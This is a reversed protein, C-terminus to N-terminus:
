VQAQDQAARALLREMQSRGALYQKQWVVNPYGQQAAARLTWNPDSLHPRALCVLDARGALLISNAHDTETINGVAMTPIGAEHRIRDAFPTQFMRGYVPKAETSTQGASVDVIDCGAAKFAKAIEVAETPTVGLDGVWDNSSLRVSIPKDAPWAERVARFVELPFRLRNELSGGYADTRKNMLPTVFASMLYGHAYHLELMDFGARQAMGAARVYQDRVLDMDARTMERPVQNRPSWPVPSPGLIEWNGEPLPADMEEWGLQTSGKPGAHGLQCAIKAETHAHVFDVIRRWAAVHEEAYLGACGPSIRGEASVDTMETILLGAGGQARAGYHVLHWDGVTGNEASYMSMPSVVIRNVLDMGRLRYPVFMPPTRVQAERGTADAYFWSEAGELWAADRLRLNEHGIRQSRTLLAYMFQTPEMGVYREVDEFWETSNRAASQLKLVELQRAEQYEPLAQALPRGGALMDALDIADELALKTGSGISFHATHAADGLLVVNDHFWRKCTLRPFNIWASGRMHRANSMLRHGDLWRAFIRECIAITGDADTRDFGLRRWTEEGCEVIFTSTDRDFRYAHVWIWGEELKEFIFTFAEFPKRTGLWVFKNARRDVEPEFVGAFHQRVKSNVGDAAIVLDNEAALRAVEEPESEHEFVLRVDLERAREQLVNLLRKRGIGCFGHGTSTVTTGHIHVDIDDWHALEGLIAEASAADNVRLNEMTQDSFVVGWGYTDGPRNREYVAIEHAPDRLKMSIAAYLGGPGGGVVAIKM